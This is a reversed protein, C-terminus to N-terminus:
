PAIIARAHRQPLEHGTETTTVANLWGDLERSLTSGNGSYWSGAHTAERKVM